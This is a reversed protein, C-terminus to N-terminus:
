RVTGQRRRARWQLGISASVILLAAGALWTLAGRQSVAQFRLLSVATPSNTALAFPSYSDIGGARVFLTEGDGGRALTNEIEWNATGTNYHWADPAANGNAEAAGYYFTITATQPNAPEIEFCRLVTAFRAERCMQAGHITVTTAGLDAPGTQAIDVGNYHSQTGSGNEIHLFRCPAAETCNADVTHTQRLAGRNVLGAEVHLTGTGVDLTSGGSVFLQRAAAAGVVHISAGTPVIVRTTSGPVRNTNWHAATHWDGSAPGVWTSQVQGTHTRPVNFLGATVLTGTISDGYATAAPASAANWARLYIMSGNQPDAPTYRYVRLPQYGRNQAAAPLPDGNNVASEDLLVDDGGPLGDEGPFDIAGDPGASILQTLSGSALPTVGDEDYFGLTGAGQADYSGWRIAYGPQANPATITLGDNHIVTITENGLADREYDFVARLGLATVNLNRAAFQGTLKPAITVETGTVQLNLAAQLLWTNASLAEIYMSAEAFRGPVQSDYEMMVEFPGYRAWQDFFLNAHSEAQEIRDLQYDNIPIIGNMLLLYGGEMGWGNTYNAPFGWNQLNTPNAFHSSSKSLWHIHHSPEYFDSGTLTDLLALQHNQALDGRLPIFLVHGWWDAYATGAAQSLSNQDAIGVYFSRGADWFRADFGARMPMVYNTILNNADSTRGLLSLVEAADEYAYITQATEGPYEGAIQGLDGMPILLNPFRNGDEGHQADYANDFTQLGTLAEDLDAQHAALFSLDGTLLYYHYLASIFEATAYADSYVERSVRVRSPNFHLIDPINGAYWSPLARWTHTDFKYSYNSATVPNTYQQESMVQIADRYSQALGQPLLHTSVLLPMLSDPTYFFAKDTYFLSGNPNILYTLMLNSLFNTFEFQPMAATEIQPMANLSALRSDRLSNWLAAPDSRTAADLLMSGIYFYQVAQAEISLAIRADSNAGALQGDLVDAALYSSFPLDHASWSQLPRDSYAYATYGSGTGGVAQNASDFSVSATNRQHPEVAVNYAMAPELDSALLLRANSPDDLTVQIAIVAQYDLPNLSSLRVTATRGLVQVRYGVYHPAMFYEDITGDSFWARQATPGSGIVLGLRTLHALSLVGSGKIRWLDGPMTGALANPDSRDLTNQLDPLGALALSGQQGVFGIWDWPFTGDPTSFTVQYSADDWQATYSVGRRGTFTLQNAQLGSQARSGAPTVASLSGALWFALLLRTLNRM